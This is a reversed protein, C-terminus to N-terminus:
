TTLRSCTILARWGCKKKAKSPRWARRFRCGPKLAKASLIVFLNDADSQLTAILGKARMIGADRLTEDDTADALVGAHRGAHGM